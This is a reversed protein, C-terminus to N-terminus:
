TAMAKCANTRERWDQYSQSRQNRLAADARKARTEAEVCLSDLEEWFSDTAALEFPDAYVDLLTLLRRKSLCQLMRTQQQQQERQLSRLAQALRQM